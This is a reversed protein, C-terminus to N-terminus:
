MHNLMMAGRGGSTRNLTDQEEKSLKSFDGGSKKKMEKIFSDQKTSAETNIKGEPAFNKVGWWSLAIVLVAIVAVVIPMQKKDM